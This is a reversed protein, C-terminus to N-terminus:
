RSRSVSVKNRLLFQNEHVNDTLLSIDRTSKMHGWELLHESTDLLVTNFNIKRVPKIAKETCIYLTHIRRGGALPGRVLAM